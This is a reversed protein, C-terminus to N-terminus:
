KALRIIEFFAAAIVQKQRKWDWESFREFEESTMERGLAEAYDEDSASYSCSISSAISDYIKQYPDQLRGCPGNEVVEKWSPQTM